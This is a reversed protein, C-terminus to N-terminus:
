RSHVHAAMGAPRPRLGGDEGRDRAVARGPSPPADCADADSPGAWGATTAADLAAVLLPWVYRPGRTPLDWQDIAASAFALAAAHDGAALQISVEFWTQMLHFQDTYRLTSLVARSAAARRAAAALDGRALEISGCILWLGTRARPNPMLHLAQEAVDLGEDWRGLAYLPEAVNIALFAGATRALGYREADTVGQRAVHAAREYEGAGYLFHSENTVVKLFPQYADAQEAIERAQALLRMPESDPAAMGTPWAKSGALMLLAKSESALDGAERAFRLADQAWQWHEPSTQDTDCRAWELLLQARVQPSVTEPVMNLARDLDDGSGPIGLNEKFMAHRGLMRALRVPATAEDLAAIAAAAIALGRKDEGADRAAEAAEELVRVHDAGIHAAADPVQSWLELVRSLLMLREAHAVAHSPQAAAQWAAILAWTTDHAAHWHHAKEIGARGDPVLAPDADIAEAYRAHVQGHEGPLLDEHVAERILAHRFAYGDATTVLVNGTVAPRLVGPLDAEGRGTVRALLAHSTSGSSASAVRLVEQTEDPLRRVAHLLLDALSDPVEVALGGGCCLLEETFLPNGEARQYLRDALEPDPQNGLIAAALESAEARTLRPLELREVWDIRALEALLPRLPHTRHLEDSRFTVIILVHRLARQYGTLFAVLDRSSRDAWHADEVVVVLPAAEALRELLSLFEEFLRARSEGPTAVAAHNAVGGADRGDKALETGSLEPLLRALERTTRSGGPLLGTVGGAGLERVLERLMATFPGFPLGDAGLELCEGTLVRAGSERASAAFEAILRSKGVGAEGGILLAAPSGQRVTELAEALAALQTARGILVPSTGRRSVDSGLMGFLYSM